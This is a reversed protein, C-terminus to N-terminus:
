WCVNYFACEASLRQLFEPRSIRHRVIGWSAAVVKGIPHHITLLSVLKTGVIEDCTHIANYKFDYTLYFSM